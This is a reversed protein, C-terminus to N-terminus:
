ILHFASQCQNSLLLFIFCSFFKIKLLCLPCLDGKGPDFDRADRCVVTNWTCKKIPTQSLIKKTVTCKHNKPCSFFEFFVKNFSLFLFLHMIFIHFSIIYQLSISNVVHLYFRNLRWPEQILFNQANHTITLVSVTLRLQLTNVGHWVVHISEGDFENLSHLIHNEVCSYTIRKLRKHIVEANGAKAHLWQYPFQGSCQSSNNLNSGLTVGPLLCTSM